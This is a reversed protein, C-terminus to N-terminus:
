SKIWGILRNARRRVLIATFNDCAETELVAYELQRIKEGFDRATLAQAIQHPKLMDHVGDSCLLLAQGVKLKIELTDVQLNKLGPQGLAQRVLNRNPHQRAEEETLVGRLVMDQVFSHDVSLQRLQGRELLFIRSDGVWALQLKRKLARAAVITTGMGSLEPQEQARQMILCHAQEIASGLKEGKKLAESVVQIALQSAIDGGAHGGMGDAVLWFGTEDDAICADENRTRVKGTHTVSTSQYEM